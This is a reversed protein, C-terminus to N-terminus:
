TAVMKELDIAKLFLINNELHIHQHLDNEFEKLMAYTVQFTSCADAPPTYNNSLHSIERFREGENDHEQMMQQIPNQVTGFYPQEPKQHAQQAQIMKRVFPFLIFEEKKMHATLEGASANFLQEIEVLEPHNSGHVAVIKKLYTKLVPTKEEVYRHHKKEIYDTLLDLPWSQFDPLSNSVEGRIAELSDVVAEKSIQKETCAKELSRNGNCCFDIGYKEFVAATRYDDAVIQGLNKESLNTM